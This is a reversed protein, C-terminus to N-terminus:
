GAAVELPRFDLPDDLQEPGAGQRGRELRQRDALVGDARREPLVGDAASVIEITSAKTADQHEHDDVVPEGAQDRGDGQQRVQQQGDAEHHGDVGRERQRAQGPEHEHEAHRHVGVHQDVLAQALFAVAAHVQRGGQAVAVVPGERVMMSVWRDLMKVAMTRYATPLSWSLPNPTESVTPSIM